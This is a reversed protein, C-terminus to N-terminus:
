RIASPHARSSVSAKEATERALDSATPQYGPRRRPVRARNAEAETATEGTIIGRVAADTTWRREFLLSAMEAERAVRTKVLAAAAASSVEDSEDEATEEGGDTTM